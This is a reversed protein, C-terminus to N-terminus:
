SLILYSFVYIFLFYFNWDEYLGYVKIVRYEEAWSTLNRIFSTCIIESIVM